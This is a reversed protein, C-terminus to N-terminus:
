RLRIKLRFYTSPANHPISWTMPDQSLLELGDEEWTKLDSSWQPIIAVDDAGPQLDVVMTGGLSNLEPHSGLAYALIDGGLYPVSDTGGPTGGVMVSARWNAPIEPNGGRYVLSHGAGDPSHPWPENDNYFFEAITSGDADDLKIMEGGNSLRGRTFQSGPVVIQAGPPLLTPDPFTFEIGKTFAVGALDLTVADSTNLLEIFESDDNAPHYMIESIVLYRQNNTPQNPTTLSAVLSGSEDRLNLLESFNSLKGQYDGQAFVSSYQRRFSVIDPSLFLSEGAPIVTGPRLTHSVGGELSWNSVDVAFGNPNHLEISEDDQDGSAPNAIIEGFVITPLTPQSSPLHGQAPSGGDTELFARRAPLYANRIRDLADDFSEQPFRRYNGNNTFGWKARDLDADQKMLFRFEEIRSELLGPALITDITTRLRRYFMGGTMPHEFIAHFLRNYGGKFDHNSGGWEYRENTVLFNTPGAPGRPDGSGLWRHGYSFDRDWPLILWEGFRNQHLYYNKQPNYISDIVNTALYNVLSPLDTNELLFDLQAPGNLAATFAALDALNSGNRAEFGTPSALWSGNGTAKFLKGHSDLLRDHRSLFERDPQEIMIGLSHFSGNRQVRVPFAEPAPLGMKRLNELPLIDRLYSADPYAANVNIQDVLPGDPHLRFHHGPNFEFQRPKKELSSTTAGRLHVLVNDYLEGNWFLSCRTGTRTDAAAFGSPPLFWQLVPLPTSFSNDSIVMGMYEPSNLPDPFPPYTIAQTATSASIRWRLMEGFSAAKSPIAATFHGDGLNTMPLSVEDGFMRRFHLSVATLPDVPSEAMVSVEIAGTELERSQYDRLFPTPTNAAGPTPSGLYLYDHDALRGYSVDRFQPPFRPAFETLIAGENDLLALYEGDASLAFGTESEPIVLYEGPHISGPPFLYKQPDAPDDTLAYDNLNVSFSNPNYLEIWDDGNSNSALFESLVVPSLPENVGLTYSRAESGANLTYTTTVAPSVVYSTLGTVDVNGPNLTLHTADSVQWRLTNGTAVFYDIVPAPGPPHDHSSVDDLWFGPNNGFETGFKFAGPVSSSPPSQFRVLGNLTSVFTTENAGSLALDYSAAPTGWRHGTVRMRYVNKTDGADDCDGDHNRDISPLVSGLSFVSGWGGSFAQWGNQYRLNLAAAGPGTEIILSFQRNPTERIMFSFELHWDASWSVSQKLSQGSGTFRAGQTSGPAFGPTVVAGANVWAQDFPSSEFDGNAIPTQADAWCVLAASIATFRLM